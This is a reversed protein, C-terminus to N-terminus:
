LVASHYSGETPRIYGIGRCDNNGCKFFICSLQRYVWGLTFVVYMSILIVFRLHAPTRDPSRHLSSTLKLKADLISMIETFGCTNAHLGTFSQKCFKSTSNSQLFICNSVCFRCTVTTASVCNREEPSFFRLYIVVKGYDV